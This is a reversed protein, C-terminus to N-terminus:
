LDQDEPLFGEQPYSQQFALSLPEEVLHQQPSLFWRHHKQLVSLKLETYPQQSLLTQRRKYAQNEELDFLM